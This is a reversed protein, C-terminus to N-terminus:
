GWPAQQQVLLGCHQVVWLCAAAAAAATQLGQTSAWLSLLLAQAALLLVHWCLACGLQQQQQQQQAQWAPAQLQLWPHRPLLLLLLVV